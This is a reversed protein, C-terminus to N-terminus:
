LEKVLDPIQEVATNDVDDDSITDISGFAENGYIVILINMYTCAPILIIM